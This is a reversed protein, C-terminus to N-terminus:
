FGLNKKRVFNLDYTTYSYPISPNNFPYEWPTLSYDKHWDKLWQPGWKQAVYELENADRCFSLKDKLDQEIRWTQSGSTKYDKEGHLYPENITEWKVNQRNLRFLYDWDEVYAPYLNEDFLGCAQVATDRLVFVDWQKEAGLFAGVEPSDKVKNYVKELFGPPFAIDHNTIMWYPANMYCKIILNWSGPVGLNSPLHAVRIKQIFPHQQQSLKNLEETIQDRGNNNIVFLEKVPYDISDILRQLWQVGNVIPVGIVPISEEITCQIGLRNLNSYVAKKLDFSLEYNNKLDILIHKCEEHKGWWYSAVAKEFMLSQKGLYEVDTLLPKFNNDCIELGRCAYYYADQWQERREHFRSLLFYAEPRDPLVCMAQMLLTRATGDRTKQKEYCYSGWILAEYRLLFDDAREACRLFYSLAPATHGQKWYWIGLNFNALGNEIDLAYETLLKEVETKLSSNMPTLAKYTGNLIDILNHNSGKNKWWTIVEKHAHKHNNKQGADVDNDTEYTFTSGFSIEEVFLPITYTKGPTFILNEALPQLTTNPIELCFTDDKCYMEVIKAAYDRKLVYATVSWDNWLRERLKFPEFDKRITLLQVSDWDKPLNTIFEEWTFNWYRVTELSLDDECFFGYPENTTELWHKIAKLHSVTCGATGENLQHLFQGTVKDNSESYRKSIIAKLDVIGWKAFQDAIHQQRDKSEELSIYYPTPLNQFKKNKTAVYYQSDEQKINWKISPSVYPKTIDGYLEKNIMAHRQAVGYQVQHELTEGSYYTSLNQRIENEIESSEGAEFFEYRKKDSHPIHIISNDNELFKQKLGLIALRKFIDEDDFSYYKGINENYGGVQIINEKTAYLLGRLYQYFVNYSLQNSCSEDFMGCLFSSSDVKYKEFFNSNPNFLYDTDVKLIHTGTAFSIALNHSQGPIYYKENDVRIIKIRKDRTTLYKLNKDSSWDVIIVENIEAFHLWSQLVTELSTERNKSVCILSISM